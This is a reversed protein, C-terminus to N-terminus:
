GKWDDNMKKLCTKIAQTKEIIGVKREGIKAILKEEIMGDSYILRHCISETLNQMQRTLIKLIHLDNEYRAQPIDDSKVLFLFAYSNKLVRRSNILEHNAELLFNMELDSYDNSLVTELEPILDLLRKQANENNEHQLLWPEQLGDAPTQKEREKAAIWCFEHQCQTCTMHNCGGNKEIRTKCKPCARTKNLLWGLNSTAVEHRKAEEYKSRYQTLQNCTLPAHPEEGCKVCFSTHCKDCTVSSQQKNGFLSSGNQYLAIHHCDPRPCCKSYGSRNVFDKLIYSSFKTLFDPMVIGVEDETVAENCQYQPCKTFICSPGSSNMNQVFIKWCNLCFSHGCPMGMMSEGNCDEQCISCEERANSTVAIRRSRAYVGADKFTREEGNSEYSALLHTKQWKYYILLQCAVVHRVKLLESVESIADKMSFIFNTEDVMSIVRGESNDFLSGAKLTSSNLKAKENPSCETEDSYGYYEEDDSYLYEEDSSYLYEENDDIPWDDTM